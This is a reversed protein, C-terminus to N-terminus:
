VLNVSYENLEVSIGRNVKTKYFLVFLCAFPVFKSSIQLGIISIPEMDRCLCEHQSMLLRTSISFIVNQCRAVHGCLQLYQSKCMQGHRSMLAKDFVNFFLAKAMDHCPSSPNDLKKGNKDWKELVIYEVSTIIM